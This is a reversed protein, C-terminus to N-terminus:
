VFADPRPIGKGILHDHEHQIVRAHFGTARFEVRSAKRELRVSRSRVLDPCAAAFIPFASVVKGTKRWSM